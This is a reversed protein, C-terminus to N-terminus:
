SHPDLDRGDTFLHLSVQIDKPILSLINKLHNDIAHVGGPGFLQIMHLTSSNKRCHEIADKLEPLKAFSGDAFMDDIEVLFQKIIRGTGITMHGVESSGIQGAPLGVSKGSADLKTTLKKFLSEFTPSKALTIANEQSSKINIGFGDLIILALKKM